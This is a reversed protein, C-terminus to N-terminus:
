WPCPLISLFPFQIFVQLICVARADSRTGELKGELTGREGGGDEGGGEEGVGKKQSGGQLGLWVQSAWIYCMLGNKPM